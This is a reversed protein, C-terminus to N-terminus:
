VEQQKKVYADYDDVILFYGEPNKRYQLQPIILLLVVVLVIGVIGLFKMLVTFFPWVTAWDFMGLYGGYQSLGVWTAILASGGVQIIGSLFPFICAAKIGGRNNAFVAIAANDFFLPIFGAIVITPSKLLILIGIMLFQGLAGFLFGVTVANPSGFAFTAAIDIGPVAGPLITNSIGQFSDTLESVFTRVGLQLIALYVAFMLSTQLIYFLFSQGEVMFGASILYDQGLTLLIIGFFFLMLISTSVMNENFISLFGPMEIDELKRNSKNKKFRESLRSFFYVGFMQQHAIAFGAGETLDQCIGVTLNSGVAWYCGLILGMVLLVEIRGFEPFCFLLLWFATAAQQVQVNGTTFVARLKTYKKFRVLLINFIFAILLLLMTDGFTRGFTEEIGATIANQGFYPDTVMADLEFREKLGVLIPRFNNVLGGSGVTLILYGVTAKLFGAVCEYFPRKLLLYGILVIFGILFAPQMLINQAFYDWASLLFDLVKEM